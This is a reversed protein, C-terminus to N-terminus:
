RGNLSNVMSDPKKTKKRYYRWSVYWCLSAWALGLSWGALVDTPYHAGLYIRSIGIIFTLFLAVSIVYIKYLRHGQVRIMLSALSLYVITSMMSHGSPFGYTKVEILKPFISPRVRGYFDKLGLDLFAGGITAVLILILLTYEKKILFYGSAILTIIFVITAGGLSTIDRMSEFLWDPGIPKWPHLPNRLSRLIQLDINDTAGKMVIGAIILFGAIGLIMAIFALLVKTDVGTFYKTSPKLSDM